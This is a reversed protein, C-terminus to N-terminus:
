VHARGIEVGSYGFSGLTWDSQKSLVYRVAQEATCTTANANGTIQAVKHEGFLITDKLAAIAHELQVTPTATAYAQAISKVRWVIGAGPETEDKVWSNVNIGTMDAPTMTATSDREKLQLSLTEVPVKRAPTLSHGNLLIM